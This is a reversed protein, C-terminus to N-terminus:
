RSAGLAVGVNWATRGGAAAAVEDDPLVALEGHTRASFTESITWTLTPGGRIATAGSEYAGAYARHYRATAAGAHVAVDLWLPEAPAVGWTASVEAYYAGAQAVLDVSHATAITFPGIPLGIGLTAEVTDPWRPYTYLDVQPDVNVPGLEWSSALSLDWEDAVGDAPEEIPVNTFGTLSWDAWGLWASPQVVAGGYPLGRWLYASAVDTEVGATWATSELDEQGVAQAPWAVGVCAALLARARVRGMLDVYPRIREFKLSPGRQLV